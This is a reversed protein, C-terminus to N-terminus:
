NTVGARTCSEPAKHRRSAVRGGRRARLAVWVAGIGLLGGAGAGLLASVALGATAHERASSARASQTADRAGRAAATAMHVSSILDGEQAGGDVFPYFTNAASIRLRAAAVPADEAGGHASASLHHAAAPAGGLTQLQGWDPLLRPIAPIGFEFRIDGVSPFDPLEIAGTGETLWECGQLVCAHSSHSSHSKHPCRPSHSKIGTIIM